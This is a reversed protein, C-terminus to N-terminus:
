GPMGGGFNYARLKDGIYVMDNKDKQTTFIVYSVTLDIVLRTRNPRLILYRRKDVPRWCSNM